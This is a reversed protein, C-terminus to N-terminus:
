SVVQSCRRYYPEHLESASSTSTREASVPWCRMLGRRTPSTAPRGLREVVPDGDLPEQVREAVLGERQGSGRGRVGQEGLEAGGFQVADQGLDAAAGKVDSAM